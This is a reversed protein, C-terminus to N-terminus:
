SAAYGASGLPCGVFSVFFGVLFGCDVCYKVQITVTIQYSLVSNIGIRFWEQAGRSIVSGAAYDARWPPCSIKSVFFVALFGRDLCHSLQFLPSYGSPFHAMPALVFSHRSAQVRQSVACSAM